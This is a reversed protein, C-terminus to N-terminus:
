RGVVGMSHQSPPNVTYFALTQQVIEGLSHNHFPSTLSPNPTTYLDLLPQALGRNAVAV